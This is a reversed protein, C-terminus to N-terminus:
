RVNICYHIVKRANATRSGLTEIQSDVQKQLKLINDFTAISSQATEIVGVLFVQVM